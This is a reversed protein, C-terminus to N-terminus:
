LMRLPASPFPVLDGKEWGCWYQYKEQAWFLWSFIGDEVKSTPLVTPIECLNDKIRLKSYATVSDIIFVEHWHPKYLGLIELAFTILQFLMKCFREQSFFCPTISPHKNKLQLWQSIFSKIGICIYCLIYIYVMQRHFFHLPNISHNPPSRCLTYAMALKQKQDLSLIHQFLWLSKALVHYSFCLLWHLCLESKVMHKSVSPGLGLM